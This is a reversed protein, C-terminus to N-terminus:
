QRAGASGSPLEMDLSAQRPAAASRWHWGNGLPPSEPQPEAEAEPVEPEPAADWAELPLAGSHELAPATVHIHDSRYGNCRRILALGASGEGLVKGSAEVPAAQGIGDARGLGLGTVLNSRRLWM